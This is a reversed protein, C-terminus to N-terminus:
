KKLSFQPIIDISDRFLKVWLIYINPINLFIDMDFLAKDDSHHDRKFRYCEKFWKKQAQLIATEEQAITRLLLWETAILYVNDKSIKPISKLSSGILPIKCLYLQICGACFDFIYINYARLFIGSIFIWNM